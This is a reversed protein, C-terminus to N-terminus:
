RKRTEPNGNLGNRSWQVRAADGRGVVRALPAYSNEEYSFLVEPCDPQKESYLRLGAWGFRM